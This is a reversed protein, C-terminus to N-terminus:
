GVFLRDYEEISLQAGLLDNGGGATEAQWLMTVTDGVAVSSVYTVSGGSASVYHRSADTRLTEDDVVGSAGREDSTWLVNSVGTAPLDPWVDAFVEGGVVGGTTIRANDHGTVALETTTPRDADVDVREVGSQLWHRSHSSVYWEGDVVTPDKHHSYPSRVALDRGGSRLGDLTPARREHLGWTGAEADQYSIVWTYTGDQERLAGGELSRAGLAESTLSVLETVALPDRDLRCVSVRHGRRAPGRHRLHTLLRDNTRDYELAPAGCWYGPADREARSIVTTDVSRALPEPRGDYGLGPCRRLVRALGKSREVVRDRHFSRWVVTADRDGPTTVVRPERRRRCRPLRGYKQLRSVLGQRVERPTDGPESSRYAVDLDLDDPTRDLMSLASQFRVVGAGTRREDTGDPHLAGTEVDAVEAGVLAVVFEGQVRGVHAAAGFEFDLHDIVAVQAPREQQGVLRVQGVDRFWVGVGFPGGTLGQGPLVGDVLDVLDARDLDDAGALRDVRRRLVGEVAGAVQQVHAPALDAGATREGAADLDGAEGAHHLQRHECRHLPELRDAEGLGDAPLVVASIAPPRSGSGRCRSLGVM